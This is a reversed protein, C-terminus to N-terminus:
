EGRVRRQEKGIIENKYNDIDIINQLENPALIILTEPVIKIGTDPQQSLPQKKEINTPLIEDQKKLDYYDPAAQGRFMKPLAQSPTRPNAAFSENLSLSSLILLTLLRIVYWSLNIDFSAHRRVYTNM